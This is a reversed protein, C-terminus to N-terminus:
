KNKFNGNGNWNSFMGHIPLKLLLLCHNLVKKCCGTAM